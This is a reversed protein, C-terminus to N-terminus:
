NLVENLYYRNIFGNYTTLYLFQKTACISTIWGLTNGSKNKATIIETPILNDKDIKVVLIKNCKKNGDVITCMLENNYVTVDDFLIYTADRNNQDKKIEEKAYSIRNEIYPYDSLNIKNIVKGNLNYIEIIPESVGVAILRNGSILLHRFNRARTERSTRGNYYLTGFGKIKNGINDYVTIPETLEPTSFYFNGLSDIAFQKMVRPIFFERAYNGDRDFVLMKMGGDDICYISDKWIQLYFAGTFEGPGKGSRGFTILGQLSDDLKIIRNNKYDDLYILKKNPIISYVDYIFTSDSLQGVSLDPILTTEKLDVKKGCGQFFIILLSIFLIKKSRYIKM